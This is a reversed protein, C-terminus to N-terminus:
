PMDIHFVCTRGRDDLPRVAAALALAAAERSPHHKGIMRATRDSYMRWRIGHKGVRGIKGGLSPAHVEYVVPSDSARFDSSAVLVVPVKVLNFDKFRPISSSDGNWYVRPDFLHEARYADLNDIGHTALTATRGSRTHRFTFLWRGQDGEGAESMELDDFGDELMADFWALAHANATERTNTWGKGSSAAPLQSGANFIIM